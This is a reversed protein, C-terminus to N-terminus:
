ILGENILELDLWLKNVKKYFERASINSFESQDIIKALLPIRKDNNDISELREFPDDLAVIAGVKSSQIQFTKHDSRSNM